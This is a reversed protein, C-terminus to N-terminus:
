NGELVLPIVNSQYRFSIQAFIDLRIDGSIGLTELQIRQEDSLTVGAQETAPLDKGQAAVGTQMVAAGAAQYKPVNANAVIAANPTPRKIPVFKKRMSQIKKNLAALQVQKEELTLKGGKALKDAVSAFQAASIDSFHVQGSALPSLKVGSSRARVMALGIETTLNAANRNLDVITLGTEKDVDLTGTSETGSTGSGYESSSTKATLASPSTTEQGLTLSKVGGV